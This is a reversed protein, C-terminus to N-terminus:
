CTGQVRAFAEKIEQDESLIENTRQQIEAKSPRGRGNKSGEEGKVATCLFKLAALSTKEESTDAIRAIAKYNDALFRANAEERWQKVLPKLIKSESLAKWIDWRGGFAEDVFAVEQPDKYNKLYLRKLSWLSETDEEELTFVPSSVSGTALPIGEVLKYYGKDTYNKFFEVLNVRRSSLDTKDM